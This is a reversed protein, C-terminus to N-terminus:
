AAAEEIHDLVQRGIHETYAPPIALFLAEEDWVWDIDALARLVDISPPVYGGKRIHRAEWPDRRAAGYLGACQMGKPHQCGGARFLPVNSEFLRHRRAWLPTGDSDLVSGPRYFETWCLMVPDVLEARTDKSVVNEIVYPRGTSLCAERTVGILRDYRALRDPLAATGQSYGTCTPSNHLFAYSHGNDAIFAVADTCVQLANPCDVPYAELHAPNTDVADM